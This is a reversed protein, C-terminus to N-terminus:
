GMLARLAKIHRPVATKPDEAAEYELVVYGSYRAERLIGVVRALDADEKKGKRTVETKVQVNVAYPAVRAMDAYPDDEFITRAGESFYIHAPVSMPFGQDVILAVIEVLERWPMSGHHISAMELAAFGGPVGVSGPGVVTTVGGGYEMTVTRERPEGDFGIGPFAMYGDIVVPPGDAVDITVFGGGGPACVGPDVCTAVLTAAVVVDFLSGGAESVTLGADTVLTSPGALAISPM